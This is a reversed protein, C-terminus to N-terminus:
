NVKSYGKGKVIVKVMNVLTVVLRNLHLLAHM